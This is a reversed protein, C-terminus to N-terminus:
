YSCPFSDSSSETTPPGVWSVLWASILSGFNPNPRATISPLLRQPTFGSRSSPGIFPRASSELARHSLPHTTIRQAIMVGAGTCTSAELHATVAEVSAGNTSTTVLTEPSMITSSANVSLPQRTGKRHPSPIFRPRKRKDPPNWLSSRPLGTTGRHPVRPRNCPRLRSSVEFRM